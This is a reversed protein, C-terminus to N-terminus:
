GAPKTPWRSQGPIPERNSPTPFRSHSWAPTTTAPWSPVPSPPTPAQLPAWRGCSPGPGCTRASAPIVATRSNAPTGCVPYAFSIPVNNPGTFDVVVKGGTIDEQLNFDWRVFDTQGIVPPWTTAEAANVTIHQITNVTYIIPVTGPDPTPSYIPNAGSPTSPLILVGVATTLAFGIAALRRARFRGLNLMEGRTIEAVVSALRRAVFCSALSHPLSM